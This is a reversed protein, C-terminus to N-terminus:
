SSDGRSLAQDDPVRLAAKEEQPRQPVNCNAASGSRDTSRVTNGEAAVMGGSLEVTADPEESGHTPTEAMAAGGLFELATVVSPRM